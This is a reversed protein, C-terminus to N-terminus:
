LSDTVLDSYGFARTTINYRCIFCVYRELFIALPTLFLTGAAFRYTAAVMRNVGQNLMKKFMVNVGSLAINIISMMIVAKWLKGDLKVM